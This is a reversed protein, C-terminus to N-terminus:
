NWQIAQCFLSVASPGAQHIGANAILIDIDGFDAYIKSMVSHVKEAISVDAEYAKCTVHFEQSIETAIDDAKPSDVYIFAVQAGAGALAKCM